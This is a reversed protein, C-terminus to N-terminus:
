FSIRYYFIPLFGLQYNRIFPNATPDGPKPAYTLSLINKHNTVNVLDFALEHSVKKGNINYNIKFDVRFYPEFQFENYLSDSFVIEKQMNSLLTDVLGYRRGGATTVKTSFGLRNKQNIAFERGALLNAVYNGNFDTNREIGDSGKYRSEYVSGTLLIFFKHSFFKEITLEAGYNYATGSNKLYDPFFRSFGSGQNILSFSSPAVTIPINYLQQYYVETKVRFDSRLFIEYGGVAHNSKSMGMNRNHLVRNGATDYLHYFYTYYPQTQSHVGIGASIIQKETIQWRMGARPEFWSASNNLSFWSAHLGTSFTLVETLRYKWQVYPQILVAQDTHQWRVVWNDFPLAKVSDLFDFFLVDTTFGAKLVSKRGAKIDFFSHQTLRNISFRYRLLDTISDVFFSGASDVHRYIYNHTSRQQEHAFALTSKFFVKNNVPQTYSVGSVMMRTRFYQDRDNQGYLDVESTDKQESIVIDVSSSGGMSFFALNGGKKTPLNVKAFYDQYYPIANTGLNLNLAGFMALTSYRYNLLYSSGKEKSIPGEAILETGFLGFQGIFEHKQANGNRLKIDFVGAIANGYESPFAGTFFDSNSMVKNNLISVPGGTSGAVAFHNPNPIDVGEVRYLVGLPTNGRVIIDNRSDDAGQVGAYNSAMRAPDSRSGAYRDAEEVSFTRASVTAMQNLAEGKNGTATVEVQELQTISEQLVINHIFEKGSQVLLGSQSHNNYGIMSAFARYRGIPVDDFRFFGKEDNITCKYMITDKFLCVTVGPLLIKSDADRVVGKVVQVPQQAIVATAMFFILLFPSLKRKM